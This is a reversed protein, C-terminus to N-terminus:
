LWRLRRFLLLLFTAITGMMGLVVFYAGRKGLEPMYEFNMGYIGVILTLPMFIVSAITLVKMIQNLRHSALSLYGNMMDVVIEQYLNSLSALREMHEYADHFEHGVEGSVVDLECQRIDEMLVQQYRFIRRLQKLNRNMAMLEALLEDRPKSLIEEELEELRTEIQLVMPTYRDIM